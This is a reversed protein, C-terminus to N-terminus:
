GLDPARIVASFRGTGGDRLGDLAVAHRSDLDSWGLTAGWMAELIDAEVQPIHQVITGLHVDRVKAMVSELVARRSNPFANADPIAAANNADLFERDMSEISWANTAELVSYGCSILEIEKLSSKSRHNRTGGNFHGFHVGPSIGDLVYPWSGERQPFVMDPRGPIPNPIRFGATPMQGGAGVPLLQLSVSDLTLKRLKLQRHGDVLYDLARPTMWCNNFTLHEIHPFISVDDMMYPSAATRIDMFPAPLIHRNRGLMGSAHEGGGVWGITVNKINSRQAIHNVLLTRFPQIGKLPMASISSANGFFDKDMERIEGMIMLKLSELCPLADWFDARDFFPVCRAPLCALNLVTVRRCTESDIVGIIYSDILSDQAWQTKLLMELQEETLNSPQVPHSTCSRTWNDPAVVLFGDNSSIDTPHGEPTTAELLIRRDIHQLDRPIGTYPGPLDCRGGMREVRFLHAQSLEFSKDQDKYQSKVFDWLEQQAQRSRTPLGNPNPFLQIRDQIIQSRISKDPGPLWGLGNDISLALEKLSPMDSLAEKM